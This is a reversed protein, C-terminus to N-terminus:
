KKMKEAEKKPKVVNNYYERQKRKLEELKQPDNRIKENYKKCKERMKEPNKKQYNSVAKLHLKYLNEAPSLKEITETNTDM